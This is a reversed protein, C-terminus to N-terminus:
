LSLLARKINTVLEDVLKKNSRPNWVFCYNLVFDSVYPLAVVAAGEGLPYNRPINIIHTGREVIKLASSEHEVHFIDVEYNERILDARAISLVLLPERHPYVFDYDKIDQVTVSKKHALPHNISVLIVETNISVVLYSLDRPIYDLGTGGVFAGDISGQQVKQLIDYPDSEVIQISVPQAQEGTFSELFSPTVEDLFLYTYGITLRHKNATSKLAIQASAEDLLTLAEKAAPFFLKGEDTLEMKKTTRKLLQAGLDRELALVHRSVVPQALYLKDAARTFGAEQVVAVFSRMHEIRM